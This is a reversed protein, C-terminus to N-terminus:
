VWTIQFAVMLTPPLERADSAPSRTRVQGNDQLRATLAYRAAGGIDVDDM